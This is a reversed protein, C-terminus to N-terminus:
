PDTISMRTSKSLTPAMTAAAVVERRNLRIATGVLSNKPAGKGSWSGTTSSDPEPELVLLASADGGSGASARFVALKSRKKARM